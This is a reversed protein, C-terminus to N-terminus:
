LFCSSHIKSVELKQVPMPGECEEMDDEMVPEESNVVMKTYKFLQGSQDILLPRDTQAIHAFTHM